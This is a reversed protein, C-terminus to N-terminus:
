GLMGDGMLTSVQFGRADVCSELAGPPTKVVESTNFCISLQFGVGLGGVKVVEM